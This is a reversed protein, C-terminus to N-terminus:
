QDASNSLFKLREIVEIVGCKSCTVSESQVVKNDFVNQINLALFYSGEKKTVNATAILESQFTMAINQMCKVEDCVPKAQRTEKVFIDHSKKSVVEGSYVDYKQQLGNVLATEMSGTLDKDVEPVRLPMLVLREKKEQQAAKRKSNISAAKPQQIALWKQSTVSSFMAFRAAMEERRAREAQEKQAKLDADLYPAAIKNAANLLNDPDDKGDQKRRELNALIARIDSESLAATNTLANKITMYEAAAETAAKEDADMKAWYREAGDFDMRRGHDICRLDPTTTYSHGGLLNCGSLIKGNGDTFRHAGQYLVRSYCYRCMINDIYMAQPANRFDIYANDTVEDAQATISLSSLLIFFAAIILKMMLKRCVIFLIRMSNM